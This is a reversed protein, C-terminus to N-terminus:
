TWEPGHLWRNVLSTAQLGCLLSIQLGSIRLTEARAMSLPDPRASANLLLLEAAKLASNGVKWRSELMRLFLPCLVLDASATAFRIHSIHPLMPASPSSKSTSFLDIFASFVDRQIQTDDRQQPPSIAIDTFFQYKRLFDAASQAHLLGRIRLSRPSCSSRLVFRELYPWLTTGDVIGIEELHPARLYELVAPANASLRRLHRLLITESPEAWGRDGVLCRIRVEELNPLSRLLEAHEDWSAQLDYRILRDFRPFSTPLPRYRCYVSMDILSIAMQFIDVSDFEHPESDVTVWRLRARRLAPLNHRVATMCPALNSTLKISLEEWRGSQEALLNFLAVQTPSNSNESGCFNIRLSQAREMQIKVLKMPYRMEVSFDIVIPSWLSSDSIAISRWRACVHTLTWPCNKPRLVDCVSLLAWSFIRGLLEAPIRRLPSLIQANQAHYRSLATREAELERLRDKLRSIEADLSALRASTEEAIPRIFALESDGPPENTASLEDLRALTHLDATVTLDSKHRALAVFAGCQSCPSIM